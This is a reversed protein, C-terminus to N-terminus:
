RLREKILAFIHFLFPFAYVFKIIKSKNMKKCKEYSQKLLRKNEATPTYYKVCKLFDCRAFDSIQSNYTEIGRNNFFCYHDYDASVCDAFRKVTQTRMISGQHVVYCYKYEPSFVAKVCRSYIMPALTWDEFVRGQPFRLGDFLSRKIIKNCFSVLEGKCSSFFESLLEEGALSKEAIGYNNSQAYEGTKEDLTKFSCFSIDASNEALNDYLFEYFDNEIFDDGDVFGIYEGSSNDLGANRASSVGGNEKHIAKIRSDRKAWEDCIQPCNDPSGDDVLIIELNKYTQNVISEVCKDLYKESKYVPVIVSILPKM